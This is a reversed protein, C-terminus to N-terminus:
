KAEKSNDVNKELGKSIISKEKEKLEPIITRDLFHELNCICSAPVIYCFNKKHDNIHSFFLKFVNIDHETVIVNWSDFMSSIRESLSNSSNRYSLYSNLFDKANIFDEGM